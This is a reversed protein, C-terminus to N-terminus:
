SSAVNQLDDADSGSGPIKSFSEEVSRSLVNEVTPSM